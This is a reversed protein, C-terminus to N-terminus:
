SHKGKNTLLGHESFMAGLRKIEEEQPQAKEKTTAPKSVLWDGKGL